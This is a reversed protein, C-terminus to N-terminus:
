ARTRRCPSPPTRSRRARPRPPRPWQPGPARAGSPVTMLNVVSVCPCLSSLFPSPNRTARNRPNGRHDGRHRQAETTRRKQPATATASSGGGPGGTTSSGLTHIWAGASSRRGSLPAPKRIVISSYLFSRSRARAFSRAARSFGGTAPRSTRPAHVARISPSTRRMEAVYVATTCPVPGTSTGNRTSPAASSFISPKRPSASTKSVGPVCSISASIETFSWRSPSVRRPANRSGGAAPCV